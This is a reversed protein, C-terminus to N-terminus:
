TNETTIQAKRPLGDDDIVIFVEQPKPTKVM